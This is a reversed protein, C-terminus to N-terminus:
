RLRLTMQKLHRTWERRSQKLPRKLHRKLKKGHLCHLNLRLLDFGKNDFVEKPMRGGELSVFVFASQWIGLTSGCGSSGGRACSTGTLGDEGSSEGKSTEGSDKQLCRRDTGQSLNGACCFFPNPFADTSM